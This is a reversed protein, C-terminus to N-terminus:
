IFRAVQELTREVAGRQQEIVMLGRRGIEEAKEPCELVDSLVSVLEDEDQVTVLANNRVFLEKVSRFNEMHPGVVVLRGFSAPEIINQGGRGTLSKGVFVVLAYAYLSRLHGITDVLIVHDAKAQNKLVDSFKTFIIERKQLMAEIEPVREIHRPALILKCASDGLQLRQFANLVIEEEGPHTSGAVWVPAQADQFVAGYNQAIAASDDDFKMNGKVCVRDARAGIRIIREADTETQMCFCQVYELIEELFFKFTRYGGYSKDSIRGNVQVIPVQRHNLLCFINPWIETEATIYVVPHIAKLYQWVSWSLDLPAYLVVADEFLKRALEQGTQTVTSVVIQKDPYRKQMQEIFRKVALVEGVSVAHIWINLKVSLREKLEEPLFGFRMKFGSHWKKKMLLYPTYCVAFVIFLIDYVIFM